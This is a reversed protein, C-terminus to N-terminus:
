AIAPDALFYPARLRNTGTQDNVYTGSTLPDGTDPRTAAAFGDRTVRCITQGLTASGARNDIVADTAMLYANLHRNDAVLQRRDTDGYQYYADWGWSSDGFKGDFGVSARKVETTFTSHSDLQETWDKNLARRAGVAGAFAPQL